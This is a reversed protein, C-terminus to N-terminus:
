ETEVTITFPACNLTQLAAVLEHVKNGLEAGLVGKITQNLTKNTIIVRYTM